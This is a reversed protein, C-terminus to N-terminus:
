AIFVYFPALGDLSKFSVRNWNKSYTKIKGERLDKNVASTNFTSANSFMKMLASKTDRSKKTSSFTAALFRSVRVLNIAVHRHRSPLATSSFRTIPIIHAQLQHNDPQKRQAAILSSTFANDRLINIIFFNQSNLDM